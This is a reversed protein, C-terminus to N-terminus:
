PANSPNPVEAKKVQSRIRSLADMDLQDRSGEAVIVQEARENVREAVVVAANFTLPISPVTARERLLVGVSEDLDLWNIQQGLPVSQYSIFLGIANCWLGGSDETNYSVSQRWARREGAHSQGLGSFHYHVNGPEFVWLRTAARDPYRPAERGQISLLSAEVFCEIVDMDEESPRANPRQASCALVLQAQLMAILVCRGLSRKM